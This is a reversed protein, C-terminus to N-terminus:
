GSCNGTPFTRIPGPSKRQARLGRRLQYFAGCTLHALVRLPSPQWNAQPRYRLTKSALNFLESLAKRLIVQDGALIHKCYFAGRGKGHADKCSQIAEQTHRGHGHYVLVEPSCVIKLGRKLARYLFDTDEGSDIKTGKGLGTDFPGVIEFLERRFSINCGIMFKRLNDYTYIATSETFSRICVRNDPPELPEVRGGLVALSPDAICEAHIAAIWNQDPVCDDDTFAIIPCAAEKVGTNRAYSLGQRGEFIYKVRLSCSKAFKEIMVRTDDSSNNDVVILEPAQKLDATTRGLAQLCRNLKDARDSTCIVVSIM